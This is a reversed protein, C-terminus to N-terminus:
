GLIAKVKKFDHYAQKLNSIAARLNTDELKVSLNIHLEANVLLKEANKVDKGDAKAETVAAKLKALNEKAKDVNEDFSGKFAGHLLVKLHERTEKQYKKIDAHIELFEALNAASEIRVEFGALGAVRGDLYTKIEAKVEANLRKSKEIRAEFKRYKAEIRELLNSVRVKIKDKRASSLKVRAKIQAEANPNLGAKLDGSLGTQANVSVVTLAFLLGVFLIALKKM